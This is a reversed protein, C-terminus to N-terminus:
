QFKFFGMRDGLAVALDQMTGSEEKTKEVDRAINDVSDNVESSSAANEESIASLDSINNLVNDKVNDLNRTNNSIVNINEAVEGVYNRLSGMSESAELVLSNQQNILEEAQKSANVCQVVKEVIDAVYSGIEAASDGSQGALNKISDAVVAFGRGSDGARAAEISANLALLNTQSAMEQIVEAAMKIQEVSAACAETLETIKAIANVSQRNSQNVKSMIDAATDSTRSMSTATNSSEEAKRSIDSIADGMEMISVNASQVNEAMSQAAASLEKVAQAIQATEKASRDSSDNVKEVSKVLENSASWADGVTSSLQQQLKQSAHIIDNIEKVACEESSVEKTLDGTALVSLATSANKIKRSLSNALLIIIVAFIVAVVVSILIMQFLVTNIARDVSSQPVGAFAMGWFSGNGDYVPEYYVFYDTGNITVGQASYANGAKVSAYIADDATSGENYKGESTKLSTLFRVNEKFLTLEIGDEKLSNMYEHDAYEDYDVTGNAAIDYAFYQNVGEAATRLAKYEGEKMEKQINIVSSITTIIVICVFPVFGFLMLMLRIGLYKKGKDM